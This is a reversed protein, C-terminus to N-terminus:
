EVAAEQRASFAGAGISLKTAGEVVREFEIPDMDKFSHVLMARLEGYSKARKVADLVIDLVGHGLTKAGAKVARDGVKDVYLQGDIVHAHPDLVGRSLAAPAPPPAPKFGQGMEGMLKEAQEMSFPFASVILQLGV